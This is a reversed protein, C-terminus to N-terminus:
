NGFKYTAGGTRALYRAHRMMTEVRPLDRSDYVGRITLNADVLLFFPSHTIAPAGGPSVGEPRMLGMFPGTVLRVIDERPGTLFRWKDPHAGFRHAYEALVDPTDHQPDVSISLLKISEARADSLKEQVKAMRASLMPCISDCRTFVFDVITPHGRLAAETFTQHQDDVLSFAPVTGLDPLDYAEKRFVLTPLIIALVVITVLAGLLGLLLKNGSVGRV